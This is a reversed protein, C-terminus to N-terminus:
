VDYKEKEFEAHLRGWRTGRDSVILSDVGATQMIHKTIAAGAAFVEARGAPLGPLCGRQRVSLRSVAESIRDVEEFRLSLGHVRADDYDNMELSVAALTTVTGAIGVLPHRRLRLLDGGAGAFAEELAAALVARDTAPVPHRPLCRETLRVSGVDISHVRAPADGDVVIVETSAGGIDVITMARLEPFAARTAILSLKAEREGSVVDLTVGMALGLMAAAEAGNQARRFPATGTAIQADVEFRAATEALQELAASTRELPERYLLGGRDLGESVRTIVCEDHLKKWTGDTTREAVLLIVSNSGIDWSAVRM